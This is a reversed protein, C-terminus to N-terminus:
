FAFTGADLDVTRFCSISLALLIACLAVILCCAVIISSRVDLPDSGLRQIELQEEHSARESPKEREVPSPYLATLRAGNRAFPSTSTNQVNM